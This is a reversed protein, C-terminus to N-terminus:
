TEEKHGLQAKLDAIEIKQEAITREHGINERLLAKVLEHTDDDTPPDDDKKDNRRVNILAVIVVGLTTVMTGIVTAIAVQVNPDM